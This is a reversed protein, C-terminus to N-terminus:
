QGAIRCLCYMGGIVAAGAGIVGGSLTAIAYLTLNLQVGALVCLGTTVTFTAMHAVVPNESGLIEKVLHDVVQLILYYAGGFIAGNLPTIATFTYAIGAGVAACGATWAAMQPINTTTTVSM